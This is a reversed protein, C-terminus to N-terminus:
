NKHQSAQRPYMAWAPGFHVETSLSAYLYDKIQGKDDVKYVDVGYEGVPDHVFITRNTGDNYVAVVTVLHLGTKVGNKSFGLALEVYAGKDMAEVIKEFSVTERDLEKVDIGLNHDDGYKQIASLVRDPDVGSSETWGMSTKLEEVIRDYSSAPDMSHSLKNQILFLDNAVATPACTNYDQANYSLGPISSTVERPVKVSVVDEPASTLGTGDSDMDQLAFFRPELPSEAMFLTNEIKDPDVVENDTLFIKTKFLYQDLYKGDGAFSFAFRFTDDVDKPIERNRIVWEQPSITGDSDFDISANLFYDKKQVTDFSLIVAGKGDSTRTAGIFVLDMKPSFNVSREVLFVVALVVFVLLAVRGTTINIKKRIKEQAVKKM